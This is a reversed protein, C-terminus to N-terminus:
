GSPAREAAPEVMKEDEEKRLDLRISAPLDCCELLLREPCESSVNDGSLETPKSTAPPRLEPGDVRVAIPHGRLRDGGRRVDHVATIEHSLGDLGQLSLPGATTCGHRFGFVRNHDEGVSEPGPGWPRVQRAEFLEKRLKSDRV